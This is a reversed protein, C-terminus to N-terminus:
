VCCGSSGYFKGIGNKARSITAISVSYKRALEELNSQSLRIEKVQWGTLTPSGPSIVQRRGKNVSDKFNDRYTGLFLHQPNSCAPNDCKHCILLGKPIPGNELEWRFRHAYMRKSKCIRFVGYGKTNQKETWIWCGSNPEPITYADLRESPTM